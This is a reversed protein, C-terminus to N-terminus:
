RESSPSKEKIGWVVSNQGTQDQQASLVFHCRRVDRGFGVFHRCKHGQTSGMATAGQWALRNSSSGEKGRENVRERDEARGTETTAATYSNIKKLKNDNYLWIAFYEAPPQTYASPPAPPLPVTQRWGRWVPALITASCSRGRLSICKVFIHRSLLINIIYHFLNIAIYQFDLFKTYM